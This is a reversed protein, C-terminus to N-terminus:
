KNILVHAEDVIQMPVDTWLLSRFEPKHIELLWIVHRDLIWKKFDQDRLFAEEHGEIDMKILHPTGFEKEADLYTISEVPAPTDTRSSIANEPHSSTPPQYFFHSTSFARPVPRIDLLNADASRKLLKLAEPSIDFAIVKAGYQAARLSFLGVNAGVDWIRGHFHQTLNFAPECNELGKRSRLWYSSHDRLNFYVKLGHYHRSLPWPPAIFRWLRSAAKMVRNLTPTM